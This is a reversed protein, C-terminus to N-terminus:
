FCTYPTDVIYRFRPLRGTSSDVVVVRGRSLARAARLALNIAAVLGSLGAGVVINEAVVDGGLWAAQAAAVAPM